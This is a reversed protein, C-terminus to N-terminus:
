HNSKIPTSENNAEKITSTRNQPPKEPSLAEKKLNKKLIKRNQLKKEDFM